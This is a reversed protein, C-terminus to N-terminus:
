QGVMNEELQTVMWTDGKLKDGDLQTLIWGHLWGFTMKKLLDDKLKDGDTRTM